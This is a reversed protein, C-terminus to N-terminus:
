ISTQDIKTTLSKTLLRVYVLYINIKVETSEPVGIDEPFSGKEENSGNPLPANTVPLVLVM